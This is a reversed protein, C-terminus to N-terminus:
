LIKHIILVTLSCRNVHVQTCIHEPVALPEYPELSPGREGAAAGGGAAVAQELLVAVEPIGEAVGSCVSEM